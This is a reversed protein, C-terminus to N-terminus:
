RQIRENLGNLIPTLLLVVMPAVVISVLAWIVLAHWEWTWLLRTTDIPHHRAASILARHHLPLRGTHFVKDGLRIFVFFFAIELPYSLHTAIQSAVLNLRLLAAVTLSILTTSGLLPNIGIVFGIAISWALKRPTCGIRLLDVLPNVIRRHLFSQQQM